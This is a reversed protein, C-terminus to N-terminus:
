REAATKSEVFRTICAISEFNEPVLEDDEVVIQLETHLFEVLELIGLSDLVGEELLRTDDDLARAKVIPFKEVIFDRITQRPM